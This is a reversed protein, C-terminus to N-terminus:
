YDGHHLRRYVVTDNGEKTIVLLLWQNPDTVDLIALDELNDGGTPSIRCVRWFLGRPAWKCAEIAFSGRPGKSRTRHRNYSMHDPGRRVYTGFYTGLKGKYEDMSTTHLVVIACDADTNGLLREIAGMRLEKTGLRARFSAEWNLGLAPEGPEITTVRNLRPTWQRLQEHAAYRSPYWGVFHFPDNSVPTMNRRYPDAFGMGEGITAPDLPTLLAHTVDKRVRQQRPIFQQEIRTERLLKGDSGVDRFVIARSHDGRGMARNTMVVTLATFALATAPFFLWTLRHQRIFGLLFYDVPGIVLTFTALILVITSFPVVHVREPLLMPVLDDGSAMPYVAVGYDYGDDDGQVWQDQTLEAWRASWGAPRDRAASEALRFKWLFGAALRCRDADLPSDETSSVVVLRGLEARHMSIGDEPVPQVSLRGDHNQGYMASDPKPSALHNLFGVHRAGIGRGGLVCLSGGARVWHRLADLQANDLVTFAEPLVVVLDYQCLRIPSAPMQQPQFRRRSTTLNIKDEPQPRYRELAMHNLLEHKSPATGQVHDWVDCVGVVLNRHMRDAVSMLHRGLQLMTRETVFAMDVNISRAGDVAMAPLTIRQSRRGASLVISGTELRGLPELGDHFDMRLRGELLARGAYILDVQVSIPAATRPRLVLTRLEATLLRDSASSSQTAVGIIATVALIRLFKVNRM